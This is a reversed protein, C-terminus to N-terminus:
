PDEKEAETRTDEALVDRLFEVVTPWPQEITGIGHSFLVVQPATASLNTNLCYVDGGYTEGIFLYPKLFVPDDEIFSYMTYEQHERDFGATGTIM